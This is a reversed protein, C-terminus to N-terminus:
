LFLSRVSPMPPIEHDFRGVIRPPKPRPSPMLGAASGFPKKSMLGNGGLSSVEGGEIQPAPAHADIGPYFRNGLWGTM